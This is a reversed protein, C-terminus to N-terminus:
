IVAVGVSSWRGGIMAAGNGACAFDDAACLLAGTDLDIWDQALRWLIAM